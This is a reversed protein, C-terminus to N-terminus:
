ASLSESRAAAGGGEPAGPEEDPLPLKGTGYLVCLPTARARPRTEPVTPTENTLPRARAPLRLPSLELYM